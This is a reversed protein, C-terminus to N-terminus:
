RKNLCLPNNKNKNILKREIKFADPENETILLVLKEWGDESKILKRVQANGCVYGDNPLGKHKGLYFRGDKNQWRYIISRRGVVIANYNTSTNTYNLHM